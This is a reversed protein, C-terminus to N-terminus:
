HHGNRDILYILPGNSNNDQVGILTQGTWHPMLTGTMDFIAPVRHSSREVTDPAFTRVSQGQIFTAQFLVFTLLKNIRM